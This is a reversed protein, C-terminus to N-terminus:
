RGNEVFAQILRTKIFSKWAGVEKAPGVPGEKKLQSRISM